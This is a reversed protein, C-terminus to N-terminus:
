SLVGSLSKAISYPISVANVSSHDPLCLAAVKYGDHILLFVDGYFNGLKTLVETAGLKMLKTYVPSDAPRGM